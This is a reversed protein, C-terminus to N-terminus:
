GKPSVCFTSSISKISVDSDNTIDSYEEIDSLHEAVELDSMIKVGVDRCLCRIINKYKNTCVCDRKATGPSSFLETLHLNYQLLRLILGAITQM